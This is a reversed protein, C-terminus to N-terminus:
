EVTLSATAPVIQLPHSGPFPNLVPATGNCTLVYVQKTVKPDTQVNLAGSPATVSLSNPSTMHVGPDHPTFYCNVSVSREQESGLALGLMYTAAKGPKISQSLPNVSISFTSDFSIEVRVLVPSDLPRRLVRAEWQVWSFRSAVRGLVDFITVNRGREILLSYKGALIKAGSSGIKVEEDKGEPTKQTLHWSFSRGGVGDQLSLTVWSDSTTTFLFAAGTRPVHRLDVSKTVPASFEGLDSDNGKSRPLPIVIFLVFLLTLLTLGSAVTGSLSSLPLALSGSDIWSFAAALGYSCLVIIAWAQGLFADGAYGSAMLSLNYIALGCSGGVLVQILRNLGKNRAWGFATLTGVRVGAAVLPASLLLMYQPQWGLGKRGGLLSIMVAVGSIGLSVAAAMAIDLLAGGKLDAYFRAPSTFLTSAAAIGMTLIWVLFLYGVLPGVELDADLAGYCYIIMALWTMFVGVLVGGLTRFHFKVGRRPSLYDRLSKALRVRQAVPLRPFEFNIGRNRLTGLLAYAGRAREPVKLENVVLKLVGRISEPPMSAIEEVAKERVELDSETLAVDVLLTRSDEDDLAALATLANKRVQPLEGTQLYEKAVLFPNRGPM